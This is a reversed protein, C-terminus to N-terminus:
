MYIYTGSNKLISRMSLKSHCRYRPIGGHRTVNYAPDFDFCREVGGIM